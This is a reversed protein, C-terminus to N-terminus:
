CDSAAFRRIDYSSTFMLNTAMNNNYLLSWCYFLGSALKAVQRQLYILSRYARWQIVGSCRVQIKHLTITM